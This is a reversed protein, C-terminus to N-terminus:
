LFSSLKKREEKTISSYTKFRETETLLQIIFVLKPLNLKYLINVRSRHTVPPIDVDYRSRPTRIYFIVTIYNWDASVFNSGTFTPFGSKCFNKKRIFCLTTKLLSFITM